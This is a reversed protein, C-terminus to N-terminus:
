LTVHPSLHCPIVPHCNVHTIPSLTVHPAMPYCPTVPSMPHRHCPTVPSMPHCTVNPSLHCSTVPCCPIVHSMPPCTVHLSLTVPPSRHRSTGYPLYQTFPQCPTLRARWLDREAPSWKYPPDVVHPSFGRRNSLSMSHCVTVHASLTVHLSMTVHPSIHCTVPSM